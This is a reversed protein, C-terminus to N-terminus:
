LQEAAWREATSLGDPARWRGRLAEHDAATRPYHVRTEIGRAALSCAADDRDAVLLSFVHYVSPTPEREQTLLEGALAERYAHAHRRRARNDAQLRPLKVRLMAAQLGDLRENFGLEVHENKHRQGLDRLRRAREALQWDDTCIAGGDGLAGLNKSPYFSFAAATGLSGVPRGRYTAGHAQCADEIVLLGHHAALANLADMDCAQGYLHVPLIAATRETVAASAAEVDILGTGEEVDCFVVEAGAHAVGLASAIYTHGPVIVEDGPGIGAAILTITLAATGSAVGVCHLASCAQAFEAEFAEVEEGLVFASAGLVRGFADSFEVALPANARRLDMFPVRTQRASTTTM